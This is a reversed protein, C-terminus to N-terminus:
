CFEGTTLDLRGVIELPGAIDAAEYRLLSLHSLTWAGGFPLGDLLGVADRIPVVTDYLGVTVHPQYTEAALPRSINLAARAEHPWDADVRLYPAMPFSAWGTATLTVPGAMLGRLLSLDADLRADDFDDPAMLGAFAVTVHPQRAYRPLLLHSLCRHAAAIMGRVEPPDLDFAWVAAHTRGGHWEAFDRDESAITLAETM